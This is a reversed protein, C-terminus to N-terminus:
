GEFPIMRLFDRRIVDRKEVWVRNFLDFKRAISTSISYVMYVRKGCHSSEIKEISREIKFTQM